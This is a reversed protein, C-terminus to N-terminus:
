VNSRQFAQDVILKLANVRKQTIAANGDKMPVSVDGGRVLILKQFVGCANQLDRGFGEFAHEHILVTIDDTKEASQAVDDDVLDVREHAGVSAILDEALEVANGLDDAIVGATDPKGCRDTVEALRLLPQRAVAASMRLNGGNGGRFVLDAEGDLMEINLVVSLVALDGGRFIGFGGDRDVRAVFVNVVTDFIFLADDEGVGALLRFVHRCRKALDCAVALVLIDKIDVVAVEGGGDALFRLLFQLVFPFADGARRDRQLEANIDSLDLADEVDARGIGDGAKQLPESSAASFRANGFHEHDETFFLRQGVRGKGLENRPLQDAADGDNLKIDLFSEDLRRGDLFHRKAEHELM